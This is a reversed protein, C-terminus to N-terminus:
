LFPTRCRDAERVAGDHQQLGGPILHLHTFRSGGQPASNLLKPVKLVLLMGRFYEGRGRVSCGM